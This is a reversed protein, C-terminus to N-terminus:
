RVKSVSSNAVCSSLFATELSCCCSLVRFRRPLFKWRRTLKGRLGSLAPYLVEANCICYIYYLFAHTNPVRETCITPWKSGRRTARKYAKGQKNNISRMDGNKEGIDYPYSENRFYGPPCPEQDPVTAYDTTYYRVESVFARCASSPIPYELDAPTHRSSPRDDM